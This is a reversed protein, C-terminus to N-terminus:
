SSAGALTVPITFTAGQCGNEAASSMSAAGTFTQAASTQGAPIVLSMTQATFTVGTTTCTGTGGSATVTGTPVIGTVTVPYPNPNTIKLQVDGAPGNPYLLGTTIAIGTLDTTLPIATGAKANATGAGNSTWAAYAVGGGLTVAAALGVVATRRLATRESRVFGRHPLLAGAFVRADRSLSV